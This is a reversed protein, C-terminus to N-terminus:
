FHLWINVSNILLPKFHARFFRLQYFLLMFPNKAHEKTNPSQQRATGVNGLETIFSGFKVCCANFPILVCKLDIYNVTIIKSPLVFVATIIVFRTKLGKIKKWGKLLLTGLQSCTSHLDSCLKFMLISNIDLNRLVHQLQIVNILLISFTHSM